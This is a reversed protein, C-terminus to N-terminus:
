RRTIPPYVGRARHLAQGCSFSTTNVGDSVVIKAGYDGPLGALQSAQLTAQGGVLNIAFPISSAVAALNGPAKPPTLYLIASLAGAGTDADQQDWAIRM